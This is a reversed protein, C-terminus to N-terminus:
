EADVDIKLKKRQAIVMDAYAWPWQATRLQEELHERERMADVYDQVATYFPGVIEDLVTGPMGFQTVATPYSFDIFGPEEGRETARLYRSMSARIIPGAKISKTEVHTYPVDVDPLPPLQPPPPMVPKFWEPIDVQAASIALHDRLTM